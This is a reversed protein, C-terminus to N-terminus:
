RPTDKIPPGASPGLERQQTPPDTLWLLNKPLIVRDAYLLIEM